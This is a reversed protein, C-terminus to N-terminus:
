PIWENSSSSSSNRINPWIHLLICVYRADEPAKPKFSFLKVENRIGDYRKAIVFIFLVFFLVVCFIWYKCKYKINGANSTWNNGGDEVKWGGDTMEEQRYMNKERMNWKAQVQLTNWMKEWKYHTHTLARARTRESTQTDTQTNARIHTHCNPMWRIHPSTWCKEVKRTYLCQMACLSCCHCRRRRPHCGGGGFLIFLM